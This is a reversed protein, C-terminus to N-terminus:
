APPPIMDDAHNRLLGQRAPITLIAYPAKSEFKAAAAADNFKAAPRAQL